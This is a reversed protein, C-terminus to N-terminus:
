RFLFFWVLVHALIIVAIVGMTIGKHHKIEDKILHM